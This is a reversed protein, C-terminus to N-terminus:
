ASNPLFDNITPLRHLKAGLKPVCALLAKTYPHQPAHLIQNVTGQEVPDGHYLVLVDDVVKSIIGLNHTILLLAMGYTQKLTGLLDIIQAQMTVDLATTPEDAVLIDPRAALAMAIMVRQQMGGSLQHPYAHLREQPNVIGVEDLSRVIEQDIDTIDPRHTQLVEAIQSRVTFVPNLAASPEQFIFGIRKGRVHRLQAPNMALVNEGRLRVQGKQIVAPPEPLLRALSLATISKGSGSEGM